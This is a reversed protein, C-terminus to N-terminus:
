TVVPTPSMGKKMQDPLRRFVLGKSGFFPKLDDILTVNINEATERLRRLRQYTDGM